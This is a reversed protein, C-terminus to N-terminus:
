PLTSDHTTPHFSTLSESQSVTRITEKLILVKELVIFPGKDWDSLLVSDQLWLVLGLPFDSAPYSPFFDFYRALYSCFSLGELHSFIKLYIVLFMHRSHPPFLFPGWLSM